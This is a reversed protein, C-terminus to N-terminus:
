RKKLNNKPDINLTDVIPKNERFLTLSMNNTINIISKSLGFKKVRDKNQLLTKAITSPISFIKELSLSKNKLEEKILDPFQNLMEESYINNGSNNVDLACVIDSLTCIGDALLICLFFNIKRSVEEPINNIDNFSLKKHGVLIQIDIQKLAQIGQRTLGSGILEPNDINLELLDIMPQNFHELESLFFEDKKIAKRILDYIFNKTNINKFLLTNDWGPCSGEEINFSSYKKMKDSIKEKLSTIMGENLIAGQKLLWEVANQNEEIIALDIFDDMDFNNVPFNSNLCDLIQIQDGRVAFWYLDSIKKYDKEINLDTLSFKLVSLTGGQAAYNDLFVPQSNRIEQKMENNFHTLVQNKGYLAARYLYSEQNKDRQELLDSHNKKFYNLVKIKGHEAAIHALPKGPDDQAIFFKKIEDHLLFKEISELNQNIILHSMYWTLIKKGNSGSASSNIECLLTESNTNLCNDELLAKLIELADNKIAQEIINETNILGKKIIWKIMPVKNTEITSTILNNLHEDLNIEGTTILWEIADSNGAGIISNIFYQKSKKNDLIFDSIEKDKILEWSNQAIFDLACYSGKSDYAQQNFYSFGQKKSLSILKKLIDIHKFEAAYHAITNKQNDLEHLAEKDTIQESQTKKLSMFLQSIKEKKNSTTFVNTEFHTYSEQHWGPMSLAIKAKEALNDPSVIQIRPIANIDLLIWKKIEAKYCLVITHGKGIGANLKFALSDTNNSALKNLENFYKKINKENYIGLWSIAMTLTHDAGQEEIKLSTTYESIKKFEKQTTLGLIEPYLQPQLYLEIINFFAFLDVAIERSQLYKISSIIDSNFDALELEKDSLYIYDNYLKEILHLKNKEPM